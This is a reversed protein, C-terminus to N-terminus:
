LLRQIGQQALAHMPYKCCWWRFNFLAVFQQMVWECHELMDRKVTEGAEKVPMSLLKPVYLLATSSTLVVNVEVWPEL